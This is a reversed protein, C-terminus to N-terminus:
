SSVNFSSSSNLLDGSWIFELRKSDRFEQKIQRHARNIVIAATNNSILKGGFILDANLVAHFGLV